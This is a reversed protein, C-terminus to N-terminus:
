RLVKTPYSGDEESEEAIQRLEKDIFERIEKRFAIHGENHYPSHMGRWYPAEAFPVQLCATVCHPKGGWPFDVTTHVRCTNPTDSSKILKSKLLRSWFDCRVTSIDGFRQPEVPAPAGSM